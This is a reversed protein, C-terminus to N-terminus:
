KQNKAANRKAIRANIKEIRKLRASREAAEEEEKAKKAEEEKKEKEAKERAKKERREKLQENWANERREDNLLGFKEIGRIREEEKRRKEEDSMEIAKKVRAEEKKEQELRNTRQIHYIKLKKKETIQNDFSQIKQNLNNMETTLRVYENYVYLHTSNTEYEKMLEQFHEEKSKLNNMDIEKKETIDKKIEDIDAIDNKKVSVTEHSDAGFKKKWSNKYKIVVEDGNNLYVHTIAVMHSNSISKISGIGYIKQDTNIYKDVSYIKFHIKKDNLAERLNKTLNNFATLQIELLSLPNDINNGLSKNFRIFYETNKVITKKDYDNLIFEENFLESFSDNYNLNEDIYYIPDFRKNTAYVYYTIIPLLTFYVLRQDEEIQTDHEPTPPTQPTQPTQPVAIHKGPIIVNHDKCIRYICRTIAHATCNGVEQVISHLGGLYKKLYKKNKVSRIQTQLKRTNTRAKIDNKYPKRTKTVKIM